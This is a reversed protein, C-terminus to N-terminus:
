RNFPISHSDHENLGRNRANPKSLKRELFHCQHAKIYAGYRQQLITAIYNEIYERSNANVFDKGIEDFQMKQTKLWDEYDGISAEKVQVSLSRDPISENKEPKNVFSKPVVLDFGLVVDLGNITGINKVITIMTSRNYSEEYWETEAIDGNANMALQYWLRETAHFPSWDMDENDTMITDDSLGVFLAEVNLGDDVLKKLEAQIAAKDSQKILNDGIENLRRKNDNLWDEYDGISDEKVQVSLSRDPISENKEPKNLFSKPIALDFGLVVDLGNMTGINKVITIMTSGISLDEFWETEAIDGNANM